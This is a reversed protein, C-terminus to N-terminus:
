TIVLFFAKAAPSNSLYGSCYGSAPLTVTTPATGSSTGTYSILPYTGLSLAGANTVLVNPMATFSLNGNVQIAAVTKSPAISQGFQFDIQPTGAAFTMTGVSWYQGQNAVNLVLDPSGASGDLTVPGNSSATGGTLLSLTGNSVVTSGAYTNTANLTLKGPGTKYFGGAGSLSQDLAINFPTNGSDACQFTINGNVTDLTIPLKAPSHWSQLAGITGGSLTIYTSPPISVGAGFGDGGNAGLYLFGGSNTYAGVGGDYTGTGGFQVGAWANIVGGTQTLVSIQGARSGGNAISIPMVRASTGMNVTGGYVKLWSQNNAGSSGPRPIGIGPNGAASAVQDNLTAGNQVIITSNWTSDRGISLYDSNQNLITTPGDLTFVGKSNNPQSSTGLIRGVVLAGSSTWTGNTMRVDANIHCTGDANATATPNALYFISGNTSTFLPQWGTIAGYITVTAAPGNDGGQLVATANNGTLSIGTLNNSFVVNVGNSILMVPTPGVTLYIPSGSFQYGSANIVLNTAAVQGGDVTVQYTGPAAGPGQFIAGMTGATTGGQAWSVNATGNNWNINTTTNVDWAGSGPDITSGNNTNGADWFLNAATAGTTSVILLGLALFLGRLPILRDTMNSPTKTKM